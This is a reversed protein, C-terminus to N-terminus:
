PTRSTSSTRASMSDSTRQASDAVVVPLDGGAPLHLLALDRDGDRRCRDRDSPRRFKNPEASKRRQIEVRESAATTTRDLIIAMIVIALGANFATGVDQTSLAQIVVQGLGPAAILAAITVMALAAMITQNIGLVITRKAM